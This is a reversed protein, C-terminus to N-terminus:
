PRLGEAEIGGTVNITLTGLTPIEAAGIEIRGDAEVATVDAAARRRFVPVNAYRVGRIAEVAEYVKSLYVNAAFDVRGYALLSTVAERIEREIDIQYVNFDATADVQIDIPVVVPPRIRIDTGIMKKDRFYDILRRRLDPSPQLDLSAPAAPDAEPAIYLYITNWGFSEAYAKAVGGFSHALAIYDSLTVAREGSRFKLPAFRRAHELSEPDNGGVAPFPNEVADLHEIDSRIETIAGARVNGVTGGGVRYEARINDTGAPPIRGYVGDGFKVWADGNEDYQVYYDRDDIHSLVVEGNPEVHYLLNERRNWRVWSDGERVEVQLSELQVPRGELKFAQNPEGTSSGLPNASRRESHRVPLGRYVRRHDDDSVTELSWRDIVVDGPGIYEFILPEDAYGKGTAFQAGPHIIVTGDEGDAPPTFYLTLDTSAATAPQLEYGILRLLHLLSRREQATALFSENAIRDQYYLIIDGMYATLELLLIGLDNPSHDTWEPLRERALAKMAELLSEYDKNTYDIWPRRGM